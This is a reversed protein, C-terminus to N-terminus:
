RSGALNQTIIKDEDLGALLIIMQESNWCDELYLTCSDHTKFYETIQGYVYGASLVGNVTFDASVVHYGDPAEDGYVDRTIHTLKHTIKAADENVTDVADTVTKYGYYSLYVGYEGQTSARIVDEVRSPDYIFMTYSLGYRQLIENASFLPKNLGAGSQSCLVYIKKQAIPGDSSPEDDEPLTEETEPVNVSLFLAILDLLSYEADEDFIRVVKKGGELILSEYKLGIAGTVVETDVYYTGNEMFTGMNSIIMGNVAASRNGYLVSIYEGSATNHILINDNKPITVSIYDFM